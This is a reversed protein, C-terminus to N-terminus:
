ITTKLKISDKTRYIIVLISINFKYKNKNYKYFFLVFLIIIVEMKIIEELTPTVSFKPVSM